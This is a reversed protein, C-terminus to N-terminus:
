GEIKRPITVWEVLSLTMNLFISVHPGGELAEPGHAQRIPRVMSATLDNGIKVGYWPSVDTAKPRGTSYHVAVGCPSRLVNM